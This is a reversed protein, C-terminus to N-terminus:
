RKVKADEVEAWELAEADDGYADPGIVKRLDDLTMLEKLLGEGLGRLKTEFAALKEAAEDTPTDRYVYPRWDEIADCGSCSGYYDRIWGTCEGHTVLALWPGSYSGFAKYAHVTAGALRLADGYDENGSVAM